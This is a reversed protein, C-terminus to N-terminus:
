EVPHVPSVETRRHSVRKSTQVPTLGLQELLIQALSDQAESDEQVSAPYLGIMEFLYKIAQYQGEERVADIAQQVMPVANQAVLTSIKRRLESLEEGGSDVPKSRTGM